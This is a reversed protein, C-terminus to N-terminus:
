PKEVADASPPSAETTSNELRARAEARSRQIKEELNAQEDRLKLIHNIQSVVYARRADAAARVRNIERVRHVYWALPL